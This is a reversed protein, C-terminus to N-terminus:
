FRWSNRRQRAALGDTRRCPTLPRGSDRSHYRFRSTRRVAMRSNCSAGEHVTRLRRITDDRIEVEAFCASPVCRKFTASINGNSGGPALTAGSPLWVGIPVQIVLKIPHGRVPRGVAIQTLVGTRGKVHTFQVMECIKQPPSGPRTECRVIWDEYTATTQQPPKSQAPQAVAVCVRSVLLACALVCLVHRRGPSM